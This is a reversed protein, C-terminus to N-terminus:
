TKCRITAIVQGEQVQDTEKVRIDALTGSAPSLVPIEMKMSELVLVVDDEAVEDGASLVVKWVNGSLEAKVEVTKM